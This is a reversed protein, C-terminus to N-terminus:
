TKKAKRSLFYYAVSASLVVLFGIIDAATSFCISVAMAIFGIIAIPIIGKFNLPEGRTAVNKRVLAFTSACVFLYIAASAMGSLIALQEFTGSIALITGVSVHFIIAVIPTGNTPHLKSFAKPLMGDRSLAFLFRPAGMTDASLWILRSFTAAFLLLGSLIPSIKAMGDALPTKSDILAHGLLGEAAYQIGLYLIVIFGMGWFLALPISRNPNKVEGSIALPTEMGSFAFIALLLARGFDEVPRNAVQTAHHGGFYIGWFGVFVFIVLPIVKIFTTISVFSAAEKVGKINILVFVVMTSVLILERSYPFKLMPFFSIIGDAFASAISGFALVAGLWLLVGIILGALEGFAVTVYGYAGGTTAVRSASEAFCLVITGFALACVVYAAFSAHGAYLYIAAPLSFIGAGIVETIIAFGLGVAGVSKHLGEDRDTVAGM